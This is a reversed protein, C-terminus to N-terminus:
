HYRKIPPPDNLNFCYFQSVTEDWLTVDGNPELSKFICITVQIKGLRERQVVVKDNKQLVLKGDIIVDEGSSFDFKVKPTKHIVKEAKKKAM